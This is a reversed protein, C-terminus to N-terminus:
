AHARVVQAVSGLLNTGDLKSTRGLASAFCIAPLCETANSRMLKTHERDNAVRNVQWMGWNQECFQHLTDPDFRHGGAQM